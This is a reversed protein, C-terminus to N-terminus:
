KRSEQIAQEMELQVDHWQELCKRWKDEKTKPVNCSVSFFEDADALHYMLVYDSTLNVKNM